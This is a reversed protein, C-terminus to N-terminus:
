GNEQCKWGDGGEGLAVEEALHRQELGVAARAGVHADLPARLEQHSPRADGGGLGPANATTPLYQSPNQRELSSKLRRM